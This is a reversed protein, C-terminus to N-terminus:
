KIYNNYKDEFKLMLYDQYVFDLFVKSQGKTMEIKWYDRDPLVTTDLKLTENIFNSMDQLYKRNGLTIRFVGNKKINGDGDLIGRLFLAVCVSYSYCLLQYPFTNCQKGKDSIGFYKMKERLEKSTICLEYDVQNFNYLEGSFEFYEKIYNLVDKCGSNRLRLSVRPVVKDLYGDTAVLGAYYFFIPNNFDLKDNNITHKVNGRKINFKNLWKEITSASVSCETAIQKVTLRKTIYANYLYNYDKYM